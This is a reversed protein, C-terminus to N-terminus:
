SAPREEALRREGLERIKSELDFRVAEYSLLFEQLDSVMVDKTLDQEFAAQKEHLFELVARELAERMTREDEVDVSDMISNFKHHLDENRYGLSVLIEELVLRKQIIETRLQDILVENCSVWQKFDVLKITSSYMDDLQESCIDWLKNAGYISGLGGVLSFITAGIVGVSASALFPALFSGIVVVFLVSPLVIELLIRLVKERTTRSNKIKQVIYKVNQFIRKLVHKMPNKGLIFMAGKFYSRHLHMEENFLRYEKENAYGMLMRLLRLKQLEGKGHYMLRANKMAQRLSIEGKYPQVVATVSDALTSFGPLVSLSPHVGVGKRTGRIHLLDNLLKDVNSCLERLDKPMNDGSTLPLEYELSGLFRAKFRLNSKLLTLLLSSDDRNELLVEIVALNEYCSLLEESPHDIIYRSFQYFLMNKNQFDEIFDVFSKDVMRLEDLSRDLYTPGQLETPEERVEDPVIGKLSDRLQVMRDQVQSFDARLSAFVARELEAIDNGYGNAEFASKLVTFCSNLSSEHVQLNKVSTDVQALFRSYIRVMKADTAQGRPYAKQLTEEMSKIQMFTDSYARFTIELDGLAYLVSGPVGGSFLRDIPNCLSTWWSRNRCREEVVRNRQGAFREQLSAFRSLVDGMRAQWGELGRVVEHCEERALVIQQTVPLWFGRYEGNGGAVMTSM